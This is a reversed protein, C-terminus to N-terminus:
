ANPILDLIEKAMSYIRVTTYDVLIRSKTVVINTYVITNGKNDFVRIAICFYSFRNETDIHIEDKLTLYSPIEDSGAFRLMNVM